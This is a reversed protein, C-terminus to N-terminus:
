EREGLQTPTQREYEMLLYAGMTSGFALLLAELELKDRVQTLIANPTSSRVLTGFRSGYRLNGSKSPTLLFFQTDQLEPPTLLEYRVHNWTNRTSCDSQFLIRFREPM